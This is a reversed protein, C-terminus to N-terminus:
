FFPVIRVGMSRSAIIATFLGTPSLARLPGTFFRVCSLVFSSPTVAHVLRLLVEPSNMATLFGILFVVAAFFNLPTRRSFGHIIVPTRKQVENGAHDTVLGHPKLLNIGILATVIEDVVAALQAALNLPEAQKTWTAVLGLFSGSASVSKVLSFSIPHNKSATPM